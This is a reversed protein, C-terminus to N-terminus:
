HVAIFNLSTPNKRRQRRFVKLNKRIKTFNHYEKTDKPIKDYQKLKGKYEKRQTKSNNSLRQFETEYKETSNQYEKTDKPARDYSRISCVFYIVFYAMLVFITFFLTLRFFFWKTKPFDRKMKKQKNQEKM